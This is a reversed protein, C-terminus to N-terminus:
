QPGRKFVALGVVHKCQGLLETTEVVLLVQALPYCYLNFGKHPAEDEADEADEAITAVSHQQFAPCAIATGGIAQEFDKLEDRGPTCDQWLVKPPWSQPPDILGAHGSAPLNGDAPAYHSYIGRLHSAAEVTPSAACAALLGSGAAIIFVSTLVPLESVTSM